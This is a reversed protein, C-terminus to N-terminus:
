ILEEPLYHCNNRKIDCLQEDFDLTQMLFQTIDWCLVNCDVTEEEVSNEQGSTQTKRTCKHKVTTFCLIEM